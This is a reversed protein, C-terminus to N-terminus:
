RITATQTWIRSFDVKIKPCHNHPETPLTTAESLLRFYLFFLGPIEWKKLLWSQNKIYFQQKFLSCSRIFSNRSKLNFTATNADNDMTKFNYSTSFPQMLLRRWLCIKSYSVRFCLLLNKVSIQISHLLSMLGIVEITSKVM